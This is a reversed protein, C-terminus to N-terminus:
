HRVERAVVDKKAPFTITAQLLINTSRGYFIYFLFYSGGVGDNSSSKKMIVFFFHVTNQVEERLFANVGSMMFCELRSFGAWKEM